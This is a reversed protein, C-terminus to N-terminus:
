NETVNLLVDEFKISDVRRDKIGGFVDEGQFYKDFLQWNDEAYNKRIEQRQELTLINPAKGIWATDTQGSGYSKLSQTECLLKFLM